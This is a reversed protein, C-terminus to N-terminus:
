KPKAQNSLRVQIVAMAQAEVCERDPPDVGQLLAVCHLAEEISFWTKTAFSSTARLQGTKQLEFTKTRKIGTLAILEARSIAFNM